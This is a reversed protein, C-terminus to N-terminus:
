STVRVVLKGEQTVLIVTIRVLIVEFSSCALDECFDHSFHVYVLQPNYM